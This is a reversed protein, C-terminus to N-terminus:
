VHEDVGEMALVDFGDKALSMGRQLAKGFRFAHFLLCNGIKQPAPGASADSIQDLSLKLCSM